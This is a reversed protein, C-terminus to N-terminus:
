VAHHWEGDSEGVWCSTIAMAAATTTATSTTTAIAAAAAAAAAPMDVQAARNLVESCLLWIVGSIQIICLASFASFAFIAGQSV